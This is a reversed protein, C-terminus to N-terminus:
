PKHYMEFQKVDADDVSFGFAYGDARAEALSLRKDTPLKRLAVAHGLEHPIVYRKMHERVEKLEKGSIKGDKGSKQSFVLMKKKSRVFQAWANKQQEDKPPVFEVSKLGKLDEKPFSDLIDKVENPAVPYATNKPLPRAIIPISGSRAVIGTRSSRIKIGKSALLHEYSHRYWGGHKSRWRSVGM